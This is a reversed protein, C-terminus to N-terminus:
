LSFTLHVEVDVAEGVHEGAVPPDHQQAPQDRDREADHDPRQRARRERRQDQQEARIRQYVADEADPGGHRSAALMVVPPHQQQPAQEADAGADHGEERRAQGRQRQQEVYCGPRDRGAHQLDDGRNPLRQASGSERSDDVSGRGAHVGATRICPAAFGMDLSRTWLKEIEMSPNPAPGSWSRCCGSPTFPGSSISHNKWLRTQRLRCPCSPPSVPTSLAAAAFPKSLMPAQIRPRLMNPGIRPGQRSSLQRPQHPSSGGYWTGTNTSVCWARAGSRMVPPVSNRKTVSPMWEASVCARAAAPWRSTRRPPPTAVTRSNRRARNISSICRAIRGTSSPRPSCRSCPM